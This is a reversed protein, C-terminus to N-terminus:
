SREDKRRWNEIRILAWDVHSHTLGERSLTKVFCSGIKPYGKGPRTATPDDDMVILRNFRYKHQKAHTAIEQGRLGAQYGNGFSMWGGSCVSLDPTQGVIPIRLGKERLLEDVPLKCEIRWSSSLVIQVLGELRNLIQVKRKSLLSLYWERDPPNGAANWRGWVHPEDIVGDIDLYCPYMFGGSILKELEVPKHGELCGCGSDPGIEM